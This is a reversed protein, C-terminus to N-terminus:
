RGTAPATRCNVGATDMARKARLRHVDFLCVLQFFVRAILIHFDIIRFSTIKTTINTTKPAAKSCKSDIYHKWVHVSPPDIGLSDDCNARGELSAQQWQTMM